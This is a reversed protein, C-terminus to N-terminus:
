DRAQFLKCSWEGLVWKAQEDDMDTDEGLESLTEELCEISDM